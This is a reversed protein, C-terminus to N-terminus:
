YPYYRAPIMSIFFVTHATSNNLNYDFSKLYFFFHLSITVIKGDLISMWNNLNVSLKVVEAEKLGSDHVHCHSVDDIQSHHKPILRVNM